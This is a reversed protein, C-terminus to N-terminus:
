PTQGMGPFGASGGDDSSSCGPMVWPQKLIERLESGREDLRIGILVVSTAGKRTQRPGSPACSSIFRTLALLYCNAHTQM